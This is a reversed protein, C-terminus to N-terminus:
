WASAFIAADTTTTADNELEASIAGILAGVNPWGQPLRSPVANVLRWGAESTHPNLNKRPAIAASAKRAKRPNHGTPALRLTPAKRAPQRAFAMAESLPIVSFKAHPTTALM